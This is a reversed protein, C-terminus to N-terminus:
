MRTQGERAMTELRILLLEPHLHTPARTQLSMVKSLGMTATPRTSKLVQRPKSLMTVLMLLILSAQHHHTSHSAPMPNQVLDQLLPCPDVATNNSSM